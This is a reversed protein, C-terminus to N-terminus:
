RHLLRRLSAAPIRRALAEAPKRPGHIRVVILHLEAPDTTRSIAIRPNFRGKVANRINAETGADGVFVTLATLRYESQRPTMAAVRGQVAGPVIASVEVATGDKLPLLAPPGGESALDAFRPEGNLEVSVEIPGLLERLEASVGSANDPVEYYSEATARAPRTWTKSGTDWPAKSELDFKTEEALLAYPTEPAPILGQAERLSRRLAELATPPITKMTTELVAARASPAARPKSFGISLSLACAVAVGLALIPLSSKVTRSEM